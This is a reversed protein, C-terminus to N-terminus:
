VPAGRNRGHITTPRPNAASQPAAPGEGAKEIGGRDRGRGGGYVRGGGYGRSGGGTGKLGQSPPGHKHRDEDEPDSDSETDEPDGTLAQGQTLASFQVKSPPPSTSKRWRVYNPQRTLKSFQSKRTLDHETLMAERRKAHELVALVTNFVRGRDDWKCQKKLDSRLGHVFIALKEAETIDPIRTFAHFLELYYQTVQKGNQAITGRLLAERTVQAEPLVQTPLLRSLWQIYEPWPMDAKFPDKAFAEEVHTKLSGSLAIVSMRPLNLDQLSAWHAGFKIFVAEEVRYRWIDFDYPITDPRLKPEIDGL